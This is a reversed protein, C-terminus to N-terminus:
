RKKNGYPCHRCGSECCYGRNKLYIASFVLLGSEPDIYYEENRRCAERHVEVWPAEVERGRRPLRANELGAGSDNSRSQAM